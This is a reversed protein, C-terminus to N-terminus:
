KITAETADSAKRISESHSDGAIEVGGGSRRQIATSKACYPCKFSLLGIADLEHESIEVNFQGECCHLCSIKV